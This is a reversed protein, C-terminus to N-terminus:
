VRSIRWGRRRYGNKVITIMPVSRVVGFGLALVMLAIWANAGGMYNAMAAGVVVTMALLGADVALALFFRGVFGKLLVYFCGLLGAVVYSTGDLASVSNSEPEEIVYTRFYRHLM